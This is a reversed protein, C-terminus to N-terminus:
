QPVRSQCWEPIQHCGNRRVHLNRVRNQRRVGDGHQVEDAEQQPHGAHGVIPAPEDPQVRHPKEVGAGSGAVAKFRAHKAKSTCIQAHSQHVKDAEPM